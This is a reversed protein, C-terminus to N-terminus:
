QRWKAITNRRKWVNKKRSQAKTATSTV